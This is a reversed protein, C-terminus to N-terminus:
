EADPLEIRYFEAPETAEFTADLAPAPLFSELTASRFLPLSLTVQNGAKQVIVQNPAVLDLISDETYVNSLVTTADNVLPNFGLSSNFYELGDNMGDGDTDALTPNTGIVLEEADTLGDGDTDVAAAELYGKEQLFTWGEIWRAKGFAGNYNVSSINEALAPPVPTRTHTFGVSGPLPRPDLM